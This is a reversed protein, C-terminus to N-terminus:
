THTTHYESFVKSMGHRNMLYATLVTVSRSKGQTHTPPTHTHTRTHTHPHPHTCTYTHTYTHTHPPPLIHIHAHICESAVRGQISRILLGVKDCVNVCVRVHVCMRVYVCVYVRVQMCHILVGEEKDVLAKHVFENVGEFHSPLTQEGTHTHTHTLSLSHTSIGYRRVSTKCVCVSASVQFTLRM